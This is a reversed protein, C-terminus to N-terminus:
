ATASRRRQKSADCPWGCRERTANAGRSRLEYRSFRRRQLRVVFDNPTTPNTAADGRTANAGRGRPEYRSFGQRHVGRKSESHKTPVKVEHVSVPVEVITIVKSTQIRTEIPPRGIHMPSHCHMLPRRTPQCMRMVERQALREEMCHRTIMHSARGIAQHRVMPVKKKNSVLQRFCFNERSCECYM